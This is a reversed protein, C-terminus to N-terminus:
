TYYNYIRLYIFINAVDAFSLKIAQPIIYNIYYISNNDTIKVIPLSLFVELFRKWKLLEIVAHLTIKLM